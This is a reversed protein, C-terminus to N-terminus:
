NMMIAKSVRDKAYFGLGLERVCAALREPDIDTFGILLSRASIM